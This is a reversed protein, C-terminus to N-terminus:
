QCAVDVDSGSRPLKRCHSIFNPFVKRRELRPLKKQISSIEVFLSRELKGSTTENIVRPPVIKDNLVSGLRTNGRLPVSSVKGAMDHTDTLNYYKRANGEDHNLSRVSIGKPQLITASHPVRRLTDNLAPIRHEDFTMSGSDDLFLSSATM